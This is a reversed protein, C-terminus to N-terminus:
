NNKDCKYCKFKENDYYNVSCHNRKTKKNEKM